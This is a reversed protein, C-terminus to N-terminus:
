ISAKQKRIQWSKWYEKWEIEKGKETLFLPNKTDVMVAYEDLFEKEDRNEYAKPHPGHHIGYPHFTIMEKDIGDRSFFNGEHYFIVEDYDINRHWFPVRLADPDSEAPRPVFSCVVFNQNVFTTHVSPPLHVRHSMVPKIQSINLKWVFLDGKWGVVDLPNFGYVVKTIKGMRKIRLEYESKSNDYEEPEAIKILAPDYIAHHGLIGRTPQEYEGTGEIVLFKSKETPVLRHTTGKPVVIYDGKQFALSGYDSEIKGQGRHVFYLLDGDVNRFYWEPPSTLTWTGIRVDDNVLVFVPYEQKDNLKRTDLAYPKCEGEISIWDTPPNKHYLHSARGFFGKRGHEDEFTGEPIRWHGQEPTIGKRLHIM